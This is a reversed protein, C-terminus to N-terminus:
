ISQNAGRSGRMRAEFAAQKEEKTAKESTLIDRIPKGNFVPVENSPTPTSETSKAKARIAALEAQGAKSKIYKIPDVELEKATNRLEAREAPALSSIADINDFIWNADQTPNPTQGNPKGQEGDQLPEKKEYKDRFDQIEKNLRSNEESTKQFKERWAKKKAVTTELEKKLAESDEPNIFISESDNELIADPNQNEFM